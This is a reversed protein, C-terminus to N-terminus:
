PHPKSSAKSKVEPANPDKIEYRLRLAAFHAELAKVERRGETLSGEIASIPVIPERVINLAFPIGMKLLQAAQHRKNRWGTLIALDGDSLYRPDREFKITLRTTDM